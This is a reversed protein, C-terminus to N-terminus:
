NEKKHTIAPTDEDVIEDDDSREDKQVQKGTLMNIAMRMILSFWFIHLCQLASLLGTIFM